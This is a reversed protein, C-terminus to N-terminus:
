IYWKAQERYMSAYAGNKRMLEKHSGDEIVRGDKFVLIRDVMSCIGLRHSILITTRDETLDAFDRYLQTEAIPDLAATPEDLIMISASQRYAARAISIKQWQGGSLDNAKESFSGVVEDLGHELSKVVDDVHIRELLHLIEQDSAERSRESVTINERLTTEYHAFDQFVVSIHQRCTAADEATNIGNVRVIGYQPLFMGCMLSIFTSKGSGNEGVVAIKEGKKIKVSINELASKESDPYAFTVNDFVVCCPEENSNQSDCVNEVTSVCPSERELKELSFFEQMYPVNQSFVMVGVLCENTVAQLQGSLTYVLTFEGIGLSPNNYIEWATVLLIVMYVSSRLFDAITNYKLHKRMIGEKKAIYTNAIARWQSKMYDYLGFHRIEQLSDLSRGGSITQFYHIALTGEEMWKARYRFTEDQQQFALLAAPFGTVLLVVVIWPNVNWLFISCVSFAVLQQFITILNGISNAMTKGAYEEAFTIKKQFEDHNEIYPYKVQCKYRLITEKLYKEIKIADIGNVYQQVNTIVMQLIYLVMLNGFLSLAEIISGQTVVINQLENTLDRLTSAAWVPLFAAVFGIICVLLSIPGKIHLSISLAKGMIKFKDSIKNNPEQDTRM